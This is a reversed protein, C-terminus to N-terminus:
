PIAGATADGSSRRLRASMGDLSFPRRLLDDVALAPDDTLDDADWLRDVLALTRIEGYEAHEARGRLLDLAQGNPLEVIMADPRAFRCLRSAAFADPAPLPAYGQGLLHQCIEDLETYSESLVVVGESESLGSRSM